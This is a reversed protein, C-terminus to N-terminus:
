CDSISLRKRKYYITVTVISLFGASSFTACICRMRQRGRWCDSAIAGAPSVEMAGKGGVRIPRPAAVCDGGMDMRARCAGQPAYRGGPCELVNTGPPLEGLPCEWRGWGPCGAAPATDMAAKGSGKIPRPAAVCDGGMDMRARCAGQPHHRRRTCELTKETAPGGASGPSVAMARIGSERNPRPAAIYDGEM